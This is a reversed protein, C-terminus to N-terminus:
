RTTAHAAKRPQEKLTIDFPEYSAPCIRGANDFHGGITRHPTSRVARRCVPCLYRSPTM